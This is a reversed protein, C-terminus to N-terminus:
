SRENSYLKNGHLEDAIGFPSPMNTYIAAPRSIPPRPNYAVVYKRPREPQPQKRKRERALDRREGKVRSLPVIGLRLCIRYVVIETINLYRAMDLANKHRHHKRIYAEWQIM